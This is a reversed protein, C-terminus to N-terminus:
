IIRRTPRAPDRPPSVQATDGLVRGRARRERLLGGGGATGTRRYGPDLRGAYWGAALRWLTALDFVSGRENSTRELWDVVCREDCFIRQNECAHVVDDLRAGDATLFHAVQGGEPPEDVTV